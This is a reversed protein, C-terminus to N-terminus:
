MRKAIELVIVFGDGLVAFRNVPSPVALGAGFGIRESSM